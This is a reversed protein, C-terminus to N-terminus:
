HGGGFTELITVEKVYLSSQRLGLRTICEFNIYSEYLKVTTKNSAAMLSMTACYLSQAPTGTNTMVGWLVCNIIINEQSPLWICDHHEDDKM